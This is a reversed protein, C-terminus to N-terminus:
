RSTSGRPAPITAAGANDTARAYLTHGGQPVNRWTDVILGPPEAPPAHLFLAGTPQLASWAAAAQPPLRTADGTSVVDVDFGRVRLHRACVFADGGNNGPGALVVIRGGRAAHMAAAIEGAAAGAREMLPEHGHRREVDRLAEISLVPSLRNATLDLRVPM